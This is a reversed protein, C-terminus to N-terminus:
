CISRKMILNGFRLIILVLLRGDGGCAGDGVEDLRAHVVADWDEGSGVGSGVM